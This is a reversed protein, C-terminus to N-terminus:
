FHVCGSKIVRRAQIEQAKSTNSKSWTMTANAVGLGHVSSHAWGLFSVADLHRCQQSYSLSASLLLSYGPEEDSSTDRSSALSQDQSTQADEEAKSPEERCVMTATLLAVAQSTWRSVSDEWIMANLKASDCIVPWLM